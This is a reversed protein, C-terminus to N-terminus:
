DDTRESGDNQAGFALAERLLRLGHHQLFMMRTDGEPMNLLSHVQIAWRVYDANQTEPTPTDSMAYM